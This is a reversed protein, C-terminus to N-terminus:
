KVREIWHRFVIQVESPQITNLFEIIAELLDSVDNFARSAFSTTIRDFLWFGSPAFDPNYIRHSVTVLANEGVFQRPANL